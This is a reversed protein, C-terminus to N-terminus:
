RPSCRASASPREPSSSRIRAVAAPNRSRSRSRTEHQPGSPARPTSGPEADKPAEGKARAVILSPKLKRLFDADDALEDAVKSAVGGKAAAKDALADLKDAGGEVASDGKTTMTERPAERRDRDALDEAAAKRAAIAALATIASYLGTWLLKRLM